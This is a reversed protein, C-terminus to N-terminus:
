RGALAYLATADITLGTFDSVTDSRIAFAEAVQMYRRATRDDWGFERDLLFAGHKVGGGEVPEGRSRDQDSRPDRRSPHDEVVVVNNAPPHDM